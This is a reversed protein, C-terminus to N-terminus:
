AELKGNSSATNLRKAKVAKFQSIVSQDIVALIDYNTLFSMLKEDVEFAEFPKGSKVLVYDGVNMNSVQEGVAIVKCYQEADKPQTRIVDGAPGKILIGDERILEVLVNNFLPRIM